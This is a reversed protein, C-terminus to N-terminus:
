RAEGDVIQPQSAGGSHKLRSLDRHNIPVSVRRTIWSANGASDTAMYAVTYVRGDGLESRESRVLFDFDPTGFAAGQIDHLTSGDAKGPADDPEDSTISSLLIQTAGCVDQASVSAHIPVMQHSPPWLIERSLTASFAPMRTDAVTATLSETATAGARDTIRLTIVHSGLSLNPSATVGTAILAQAPLGFNEFWEYAAIDDRTGPTSDADSSNSADLQVAAGAPSTCETQVAAESHAVPAHNDTAGLYLAAGEYSGVLVDEFGDGNADGASAVSIGVGQFAHEGQVQWAPGAEVGSAKGKFLYTRGVSEVTDSHDYDPEGALFDGFGDGNVDGAPAVSTGLHTLFGGTVELVPVLGPGSSSGLYVQVIGPETGRFGNLGGVLVDAFGDANLDGASAVASGLWGFQVLRQTVWSPEAAPGLASGSYLRARGTAPVEFPETVNYLPEGVLVEDFGDGDVDGASAVSYGLATYPDAQTITWAPSTAAGGAAGLYVRVAPNTFGNSSGVIIDDFGDGNVDGASAISKIEPQDPTDQPTWGPVTALGAASGYYLNPKDFFFPGSSLVDDYGDGNVDGAGAVHGGYPSTWSPAQSLGQASGQYVYATGLSALVVDDFGDDNVDGAGAVRSGFNSTWAPTTLLPDVTLPYTARDDQIRIQLAGPVLALSAPLVAGTADTVKLVGYRLAEQGDQGMFAIGSERMAARSALPGSLRMELVVPSGAAGAPAIGSIRFVQEIGREDFQYWETVDQHRM